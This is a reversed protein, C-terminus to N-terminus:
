WVTLEFETRRQDIIIDTPLQSLVGPQIITAGKRGPSYLCMWKISSIVNM